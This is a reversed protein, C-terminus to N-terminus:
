YYNDKILDSLIRCPQCLEGASPEGCNRCIRLKKEALGKISPMLREISRLITFKIGPYKVELRNLISRVDSRMAERAYPCPNPQFEIGKFYAYLAVEREPIKYFPKVRQVFGESVKGIIPGIRALRLIDGHVINLLITQVEDDLNHATVLKTADIEKAAIDLARRRLVGCFSCPSLPSKGRLEDVIEDLTRGYLEKFSLIKHSIGLKRCNKKAIRVGHARYGKIGEDVTVATLKVQPFEEEIKHLIQLLSVSDKGGSVAVAITDYPRLMRHKSITDRVRKEISTVFCSSCLREGSYERFFSEPRKGCKTCLRAM